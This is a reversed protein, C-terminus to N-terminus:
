EKQKDIEEGIARVKPKIKKVSEAIRDIQDNTEEIIQHNSSM